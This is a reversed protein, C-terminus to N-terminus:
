AILVDFEDLEKVPGICLGCPKNPLVRVRQGNQECAAIAALRAQWNGTARFISKSTTPPDLLEDWCDLSILNTSYKPVDQPSQVVGTNSAYASGTTNEQQENESGHRCPGAWTVLHSDFSSFIDLDGLNVGKDNVTIVSELLVAHRDRFGRAGVDLVLEFDTLSLHLSTGKFCDLFQGDFPLHNILQWSGPDAEKFRPDVVPFMFAMEPRGMNGFVRKIPQLSNDEAPDSMLASAVFISDYSSMAIVGKLSEPGILFQGSEFMALCSFFTSLSLLEQSPVWAVHSWGAQSLPVKLVELSVTAGPLGKYLTSAFVMATLSEGIGSGDFWGQLSLHLLDLTLYPFRLIAEVEDITAQYESEATSGQNEAESSNPKRRTRCHESKYISCSNKDGLVFTYFTPEGRNHPDEWQFEDNSHCIDEEGYWRLDEGLAQIRAKQANNFCVICDFDCEDGNEHTTPFRDYKKFRRCKLDGPHCALSCDGTKFAACICDPGDSILCGCNDGLCGIRNAQDSEDSAGLVWRHHGRGSHATGDISRKRAGRRVPVASAYEYSSAVSVPTSKKQRDDELIINVPITVSLRDRDSLETDRASDTDRKSDLRPNYKIIIEESDPKLFQAVQRLLKIKEEVMEDSILGLITKYNTLGFGPVQPIHRGEFFKGQTRVGLSLLKSYQQSLIGTANSYRDAAGSLMSLWNLDPLGSHNPRQNVLDWLLCILKCCRSADSCFNRLWPSLVMGLVVILFDDMSVRSTDSNLRGHAFVPPSYYRMHAMPLSWFIGDSDETAPSIHVSFTLLSRKMIPDNQEVRTMVDSLVAMDPYLHWSSIALLISGDRIQQPIGQVLKEMAMMASKWAKIVSEYPDSSSNVPLEINSIILMLQTQQVQMQADATKIWSRASSDWAALQERNFTQQAAMLASMSSGDATSGNVEIRRREVLEVWLSIAQPENWIRALMCALLQVAIAGRGSTAAAWINTADPGAQSSFIGFGTNSSESSIRSSIESVRQGYASVLNPIPPVLPEFLAGLKRATIHPQGSEAKDRRAQSLADRVGHFEKPAEVKVLSFDFNLSAAAVTLETPISLLSSTIKGISSMTTLDESVRPFIFYSCLEDSQPYELLMIIRLSSM